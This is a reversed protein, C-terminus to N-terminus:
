PNESRAFIVILSATFYCSLSSMKMLGLSVRYGNLLGEGEGREAGGRGGPWWQDTKQGLKDTKMYVLNYVTLGKPDPKM